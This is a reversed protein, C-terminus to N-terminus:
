DEYTIGLLHKEIDEMHEVSFPDLGERKLYNDLLILGDLFSTLDGTNNFDSPQFKPCKQMIKEPTAKGRELGTAELVRELFGLAGAEPVFQSVKELGLPYVAFSDSLSDYGLELAIGLRRMKRAPEYTRLKELARTYRDAFTKASVEEVTDISDPEDVFLKKDKYYFFRISSGNVRVEIERSKPDFSGKFTDSTYRAAYPYLEYFGWVTGNQEINLVFFKYDNIREYQEDSLKDFDLPFPNKNAFFHTQAFLSLATFLAFLIKM